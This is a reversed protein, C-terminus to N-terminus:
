TEPTGEPAPAAAAERQAASRSQWRNQRPEAQRALRTEYFEIIRQRVDDKTDGAAAPFPAYRQGNETSVTFWWWRGRSSGQSGEVSCTFTRDGHVFSFANAPAAM